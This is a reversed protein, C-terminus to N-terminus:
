DRVCRVSFGERKFYGFKNVEAGNFVLNRGWANTPTTDTISWWYGRNGINGFSGNAGRNGGSAGSFGSQNTAQTNPTNWVGTGSQITGTTKMKGGSVNSTNEGGNATPDLFNILQDWELDTPVHWGEPALNKRLTSDNASAEDYIGAVAYWNYLRGYNTSYSASDNGFWCWAGTTLSAWQAVNTV